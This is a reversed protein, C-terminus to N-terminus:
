ARCSLNTPGQSEMSKHSMLMSQTTDDLHTLDNKAKGTKLRKAAPPGDHKESSLTDTEPESKMTLLHKPQAFKTTSIKICIRPYLPPSSSSLPPQGTENFQLPRAILAFSHFNSDETNIQVNRSCGIIATVDTYDAPQLSFAQSHLHWMSHICTLMTNM